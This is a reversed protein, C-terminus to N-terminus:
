KEETCLFLGRVGDVMGDMAVVRRHITATKWKNFLARVEAVSLYSDACTPDNWNVPNNFSYTYPTWSSYKVAMPDVQHFRGLVPDYDRFHTEFWGTSANRTSLFRLLGM